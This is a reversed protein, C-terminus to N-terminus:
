EGASRMACKRLVTYGAALSRNPFGSLQSAGLWAANMAQQTQQPQLTRQHNDVGGAVGRQREEDIPQEIRQGSEEDADGGDEDKGLNCGLDPQVEASGPGM